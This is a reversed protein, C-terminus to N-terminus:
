GEAVGAYVCRSAVISLAAWGIIRGDMEAILHFSDLHSNDWEEFPPCETQFTAMNTDMGMQYITSVPNWGETTM